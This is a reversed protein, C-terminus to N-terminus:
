INQEVVLDSNDFKIGTTYGSLRTSNLFISIITHTSLHMVRENGVLFIILGKM